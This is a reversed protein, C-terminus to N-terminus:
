VSRRALTALVRNGKSEVKKPKTKGHCNAGQGTNRSPVRLVSSKLELDKARNSSGGIM